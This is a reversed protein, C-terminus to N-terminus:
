FYYYLFVGCGWVGFWFFLCGFFGQVTESSVWSSVFGTKSSGKGKSRGQQHLTANFNPCIM